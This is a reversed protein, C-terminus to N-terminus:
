EITGPVVEMRSRSMPRNVASAIRRPQIWFDQYRMSTSAPKSTHCPPAPRAVSEKATFTGPSLEAGIAAPSVAAYGTGLEVGTAAPPDQATM